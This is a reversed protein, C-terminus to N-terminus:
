PQWSPASTEWYQHLIAYSSTLNVSTIGAKLFRVAGVAVRDVNKAAKFEQTAQDMLVNTGMTLATLSGIGFESAAQAYHGRVVDGAAAVYYGAASVSGAVASCEAQGAMDCVAAVVGAIGGVTRGGWSLAAGAGQSVAHFGSSAAHVVSHIFGFFGSPKPPPPPPPAPPHAALWAVAEEATIGTYYVARDRDGDSTWRRAASRSLNPPPPCWAPNDCLGNPDVNSVPNSGAYTFQNLSMPIEPNGFVSDQTTFRGVGPYYYRAGMDVFGSAPDTVDGQFGLITAEGTTARVAGWPDYAATGTFAGSTNALAVADGHTNTM